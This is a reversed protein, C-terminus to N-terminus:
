RGKGCTQCERRIDLVGGARRVFRVSGRRRRVGENWVGGTKVVLRVSGRGRREEKDGERSGKGCTQCEVRRVERGYVKQREWLDSM